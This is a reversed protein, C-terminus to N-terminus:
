PKTQSNKKYAYVFKADEDGGGDGGDAGKNIFYTEIERSTKDDQAKIHIWSTNSPEFAVGHAKLREKPDESIGVYWSSLNGSMFSEIEKIIEQKSKAM